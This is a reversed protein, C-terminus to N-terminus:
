HMEATTIKEVLTQMDDACISPQQYQPHYPAGSRNIYAAQMGASLAGHTDWDHTAVLRLQEIPHQLQHAIWQYVKPDPKFSDAAEVSFVHDFYDSLGANNIQETILTLSSNSFAITQYGKEKLYTLAPKIDHHAPLHAFTNLIDERHLPSLEVGKRMALTDLMDGALSAFSSKVHTLATVTSSHLLMSFWLSLASQDAFATYFKPVLASLDLVTENIDFLIIKNNM